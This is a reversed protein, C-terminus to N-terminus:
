PDERSSEQSVDPKSAHRDGDKRRERENRRNQQNTNSDTTSHDLSPSLMTRGQVFSEARPAKNRRKNTHRQYEWHIDDAADDIISDEGNDQQEDDMKSETRKLSVTKNAGSNTTRPFKINEYTKRSNERQLSQENMEADMNELQNSDNM